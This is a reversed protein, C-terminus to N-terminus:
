VTTAAFGSEASDTTCLSGEGAAPARVCYTTPKSVELVPPMDRAALLSIVTVKGAPM